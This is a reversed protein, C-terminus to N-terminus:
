NTYEVLGETTCIGHNETEKLSTSQSILGNIEHGSKVSIRVKEFLNNIM